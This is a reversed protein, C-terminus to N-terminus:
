AAVSEGGTPAQSLFTGIADARKILAEPAATGYREVMSATKWGAMEMLESKSTGADLHWSTWVHRWDHWRFDERILEADADQAKIAANAVVISRKWIRHPVMPMGGLVYDSGNGKLTELLAVVPASLPVTIREKGKAHEPEVWVTRKKLDVDSWRMRFVNSLRLGTLAALRAAPRYKEPLANLIADAQVPSLRVKRKNNEPYTLLAPYSDIWKWERAAARLISRILATYRNKTAPTPFDKVLDTVLTRDIEDLYMTGIKPALLDLKAKDDEISRKHAKEVKWQAAADAWTKRAKEGLRREKWLKARTEDHLRQALKKDNTKCSERHRHGNVMFDMWWTDGRKIISM